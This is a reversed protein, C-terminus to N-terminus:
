DVRYRALKEEDIVAGNGPRKPLQIFGDRFSIPEALFDDKLFMFHSLDSPISVNARAAGFQASALTGIGTEAQTGMLCPIDAAEALHVIKLSQTYGTRPAKIGIIGIVGLDIERAVQEPTFVSEDGLIPASIARAVKLRGRWDWCPVPEEVFGIEYEEMKRITRIATSVSYAMNADINISVDPGTFERLSKVVEIDKKPERGVKVRFARIGKALMGEAEQMMESISRQGLTWEIEISDSFGGLMEWLPIGRRKAVADYLAMDLAGKATPNWATEDLKRWIKETHGPDLGIIMPAFWNRIAFVISTQSEGYISPRPTAEAAGVIGDDTHIRVLVHEAADLYGSLGWKIPALFPIKFPIAEVKMVKM